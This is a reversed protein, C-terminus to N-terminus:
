ARPAGRRIGVDSYLCGSSRCSRRASCYGKALSSGGLNTNINDM